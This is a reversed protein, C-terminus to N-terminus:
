SYELNRVSTPWKLTGRWTHARLGGAAHVARRFPTHCSATHPSGLEQSLYQSKHSARYLGGILPAMSSNRSLMMFDLDFGTFTGPNRRTYRCTPSRISPTTVCFGCHESVKSTQLIRGQLHELVVSRTYVNMDRCGQVGAQRAM